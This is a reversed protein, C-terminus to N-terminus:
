PPSLTSHSPPGLRPGWWEGAKGRSQGMRAPGPGPATGAPPSTALLVLLRSNFPRPSVRQLCPKGGNNDACGAGPPLALARKARPTKKRPVSPAAVEGWGGM